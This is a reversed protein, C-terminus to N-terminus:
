VNNKSPSQTTVTIELEEFRKIYYSEVKRWVLIFLLGFVFYSIVASWGYRKLINIHTTTKYKPKPYDWCASCPSYGEKEAQYMTTKIKSKLYGCTGKHYKQGTETVYCVVDQGNIIEKVEYTSGKYFLADGLLVTFSFALALSIAIIFVKLVINGTRINRRKKKIDTNSSSLLNKNLAKLKDTKEWVFFGGAFIFGIIACALLLYLTVKNDNNAAIIFLMIM